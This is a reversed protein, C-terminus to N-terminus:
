TARSMAPPRPHSRCLANSQINRRVSAVPTHSEGLRCSRRPHVAATPTNATQCCRPRTGSKSVVTYM